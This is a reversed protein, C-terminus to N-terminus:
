YKAIYIPIPLPNLYKIMLPLVDKHFDLGGCGCGLPPFTISTIGRKEYTEVFNKLGAEILDTSSKQWWNVKTPFNLIWWPESHKWLYLMGPKFPNPSKPDCCKKYQLFMKPSHKKFDLAIGKGCIGGLNVTNVVTQTTANLINGQYSEIIPM